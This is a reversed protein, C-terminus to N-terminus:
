LGLSHIQFAHLSLCSNGEGPCFDAWVSTLLAPIGWNGLAWPVFIQRQQFKDKCPPRLSPCGDKGQAALELSWESVSAWM